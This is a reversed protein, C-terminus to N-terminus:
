KNGIQISKTEKEQRIARITIELVINFLFSSFVDVDREQDLPFTILKEGNLIVNGIPKEYIAKIMKLFNREIRVKSLPNKKVM